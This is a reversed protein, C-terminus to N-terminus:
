DQKAKRKKVLLVSLATISLLSVSSAIIIIITTANNGGDEGNILSYPNFNNIASASKGGTGMFDALEYETGYKGYVYNYKGICEVIDSDSSHELDLWYTVYDALGGYATAQTAWPGVLDSKPTGGAYTCADGISDNFGRAFAQAAGLGSTFTPTWTQASAPMAASYPSDSTYGNFPSNLIYGDKATAYLYFTSNYTVTVTTTSTISTYNVAGNIKYYINAIGSGVTLTLNYSNISWQAIYTTNAAPMTAAPTTNWGTFTYGERTVSNPQTITAGYKVSGSTGGTVTGGNGDWTLTYSNRTYQYTVVRSGDALITVTQGAPATFGEYNKRAPTVSAGTTGTLNDTDTPSSPYTGDLNQKYHKVTYPTDTNPSWATNITFTGYSNAPITITSGSVTPASGGYAGTRTVSYTPNKYGTKTPATVTITQSSGSTSYSTRSISGGLGGGNDFTVDYSNGNWTTGITFTGYSGAPITVTNGSITPSSGGYDGTRTITYSPNYGVKTPATITISSSASPKYTYSSASISGGTGGGNNFSVAYTAATWKAYLTVNTGSSEYYGGAYIKTVTDDSCDSKLHWGDFTYGAKTGSVLTTDSTYSCTSPLSGINNGSYTGGGQDKYTVSRTLKFWTWDEGAVDSMRYFSTGDLNSGITVTGTKGSDGGNDFICYLPDFSLESLDRYLFNRGGITVSSGQVGPWNDRKGAVDQQWTYVYNWNKGTSTEWLVGKADTTTWQAYLTITAGDYLVTTNTAYEKVLKGGSTFSYGTGDAKTNWGAFKYGVKFFWNNALTSNKNDPMFNSTNATSGGDAGNGNYSFTVYRVTWTGLHFKNGDWGNHYFGVKNSSVDYDYWRDSYKENNGKEKYHVEWSSMNSELQGSFVCCDDWNTFEYTMGPSDYGGDQWWRALWPNIGQDTYEFNDPRTFWIKGSYIADAEKFDRVSNNLVTTSASFFGAVALFSILFFNKLKFFRRVKCM